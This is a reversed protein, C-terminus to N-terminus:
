VSASISQATRGTSSLATRVDYWHEPKSAWIRCIEADSAPDKRNEEALPCDSAIYFLYSM